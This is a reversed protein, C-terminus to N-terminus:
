NYEKNHTLVVVYMYMYLSTIVAFTRLEQIHISLQKSFMFKYDYNCKSIYM